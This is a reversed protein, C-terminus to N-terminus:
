GRFLKGFFNKSLFGNDILHRKISRLDVALSFSTVLPVNSKIKVRRTSENETLEAGYDMITNTMIPWSKFGHVYGIANGTKNNVVPGGSCGPIFLQDIELLRVGQMKQRQNVGEQNKFEYAQNAIYSTLISGNFFRPTQTLDGLVGASLWQVSSGIQRRKNRFSCKLPKVNYLNLKESVDSNQEPDIELIALDYEPNHFIRKASLFSFQGERLDFEKLSKGSKKTIAYKINGDNNETGEGIVHNCTLIYIPNKNIIFGTGVIKMNQGEKRLISFVNKYLNSWEM